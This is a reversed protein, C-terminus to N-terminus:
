FLAIRSKTSSPLVLFLLSVEERCCILTCPKDVCWTGIQTMGIRRSWFLAFKLEFAGLVLCLPLALFAEFGWFQYSDMRLCWFGSGQNPVNRSCVELIIRPYAKSTGSPFEDQISTWTAAAPKPIHEPPVNQGSFKQAGIKFLLCVCVCHFGTSGETRLGAGAISFEWPGSHVTCLAEGASGSSGTSDDEFARGIWIGSLSHFSLSLDLRQPHYSLESYYM